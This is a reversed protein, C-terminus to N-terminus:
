GGGGCETDFFSDLTAKNKKSRSLAGSPPKPPSPTSPSSPRRTETRDSTLEPASTLPVAGNDVAEALPGNLLCQDIHANLQANRGGATSGFRAPVVQMCVPCIMEPPAARGERKSSDKRNSRKTSQLLQGAGMLAGPSPVDGAAIADDLDEKTPSVLRRKPSPRMVEPTSRHLEKAFHNVTREASLSPSWLGREDDTLQPGAAFAAPKAVLAEPAQTNNGAKNDAGGVEFGDHYQAKVSNLSAAVALKLQSADEHEELDMEDEHHASDDFASEDRVKKPGDLDRRVRRKKPSTPDNAKIWLKELPGGDKPKRTDKLASIRVGILRLNMGPNVNLEHELLLRTVRFVDEAKCIHGQQTQDRTFRQFNDLKYTLTVKKGVFDLRELDKAVRESSERLLELLQRPDATPKFTHERGVSKREERKSPEVRSSAVGLHYNLFSELSADGLVLAIRVRLRWIDGCTEVGIAQLMRETVRGVGPVKRIPLTAMFDVCAQPTAMLRFQGNPKSKESAIKALMTNPAIGVSVTLGTVTQVQTRLDAVAADIQVNNLRCYDTFDLYAEDLSAQLLNPDFRRFIAMVQGSAEVYSSMNNPVTILEPCLTYAIHSAMGSRVGFARAEYSATVLVGKGVGFAKGKLTPDRKIEVAAYFMDLDCVAIYRSLDREEECKAALAEAKKEIAHWEHSGEPVARLREEMTILMAEVRATIREDNRRENEFFKSGRSAEYIIRNIEEQDKKLGAKAASPGGMRKLLSENARPSTTEVVKQNKRPSISASGRRDLAINPTTARGAHYIASSSARTDHEVHSPKMIPLLSAASADTSKTDEVRVQPRVRTLVHSTAGAHFAYSNYRTGQPSNSPTAPPIASASFKNKISRNDSWAMGYASIIGEVIKPGKDVKQSPRVQDNNNLPQTPCPRRHGRVQVAVDVHSSKPNRRTAAVKRGYPASRRASAGRGRVVTAPGGSGNGGAVAQAGWELSASASAAAVVVVVVVVGVGVGVVLLDIECECGRM